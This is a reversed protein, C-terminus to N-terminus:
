SGKGRYRRRQTAFLDRVIGSTWGIFQSFLEGERYNGPRANWGEGYAGALLLAVMAAMEGLGTANITGDADLRTSIFQPLYKKGISRLVATGFLLLPSCQAPLQGGSAAAGSELVPWLQEDVLYDQTVNYASITEFTVDASISPAIETYADDLLTCIATYLDEDSPIESGTIQVHYTNIIDEVGLAMRAVVRWVDNAITSV